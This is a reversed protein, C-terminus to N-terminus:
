YPLPNPWRGGAALGQHWPKTVHSEPSFYLMQFRASQSSVNIAPHQSHIFCCSAICRKGAKCSSSLTDCVASKPSSNWHQQLDHFGLHGQVQLEPWLTSLLSTFGNEDKGGKKNFFFCRLKSNWIRVIRLVWSEKCWNQECLPCLMIRPSSTGHERAWGASYQLHGQLGPCCVWCVNEWKWSLGAM